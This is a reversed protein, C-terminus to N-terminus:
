FFTQVSIVFNRGPASIGSSYPRYRKDLINELGLNLTLYNNLTIQSKFNIISYAPVYPEGKNNLAYLYDKSKESPPLKEASIEGNFITELSLKLIKREFILAGKGFLPAAHRLPSWTGDELQEEGHTYNFNGLFKFNRSLNFEMSFLGGYVKARAANQIAQIKSLEGDYLIYDQGNLSFDRRVLADQLWSHYGHINLLLLNGFKKSIGGEISYIHEPKLQPNPVVVNGPESDFVKAIDDINPARYGTAINVNFKFGKKLQLTSGISGSLAGHNFDAKDFPFDYFKRNFSSKSNVYSYRLGTELNLNHNLQWIDKAYIGIQNWKSGNPYRSAIEQQLGTHINKSNGYSNVHNLHMDLGYFVENRDNFKKYFAHDWSWVNVQEIRNLKIPTNFDRDHRSEKFYQHSLISTFEDVWTANPKITTRFATQVWEQPGYYWAASRLENNRYRILRDYRPVNSTNAYSFSFNLDWIDSPKFKVKQLFNVQKYGSQRQVEPNENTMMFDGDSTIEVYQPRLYAAPGNSGMKLDGFDSYSFSTFSTWQPSAVSLDAHASKEEAATSYRVTTKGMMKLHSSTQIEETSFDMVGGIADSGYLVSGPGMIVQANRITFPDIGIVNQINGSRFIANNMRVGDVVILVRNTAFGRMMPSGGGLQSKQIFVEGTYTLADATTQPQNFQIDEETFSLVNVPTNEKRTKWKFGQASVTKLQFVESELYILIDSTLALNTFDVEKIQYDEKFFSLFNQYSENLPIKGSYDTTGLVNDNADLVLVEPIPNETNSDRIQLTQAWGFYGTFFSILLFRLKM